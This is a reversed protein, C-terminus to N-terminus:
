EVWQVEESIVRLFDFGDVKTVFVKRNLAKELDALTVDDLFYDSEARLMCDPIMINKYDSEQVQKIIDSGTVLGAVTIAPGFFDNQIARVNIKYNPFKNLIRNKVDEMFERALVGTVLTVEGIKDSKAISSLAIDLEESFNRVLGVGNEIQPYGEYEGDNPIERKAVIYFEDSLFAFRTKSDELFEKQLDEIQDIIENSMEQDYIKLKPLNDRYKTLGVPVIAVSHVSNKLSYLDRITRELEKGDNYGPVSVIQCNIELRAEDFRKLIEFIKGANINRLMKKRLEPNTTHVSVNIPSIRYDIIRQIEEKSMNTLTVFNGQLFSLRSDDDKFYLTERMNPPLQSIFCFICNNSCSKAKDILPNSFEIGLDEDYDKEIEFSILQGDKKRIDLSIFEDTILYKYDIIDKIKSNNIKLIEDGVEIKLDEAISDKLVKEVINVDKNLCIEM